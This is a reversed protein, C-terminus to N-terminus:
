SYALLSFVSRPSLRSRGGLAGLEIVFATEAVVGGRNEVLRAAAEATGGTALLDDVVVVRQGRGVADQHMELADEGYELAYSVRDTRYPLKGPKRVVVLGAGLRDALAAAFIFGRSEVGLVLDPAADRYREAFLDTVTRFSPGDCLLPTIDRFLIGPKPFDPIERIRAGLTSLRTDM